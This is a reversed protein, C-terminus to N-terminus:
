KIKYKHILHCERIREPKIQAHTLGHETQKYKKNTRSKTPDHNQIAINLIILHRIFQSPPKWENQVHFSILPGKSFGTYVIEVAKKYCTRLNWYINEKQNSQDSGIYLYCISTHYKVEM